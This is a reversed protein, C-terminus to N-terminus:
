LRVVRRLDDPHTIWIKVEPDYSGEETYDIFGFAATLSTFERESWITQVLFKGEPGTVRGALLADKLAEDVLGNTQSFRKIDSLAVKAVTHPNWFVERDRAGSTDTVESYAVPVEQSVGEVLLYGMKQGKAVRRSKDITRFTTGQRQIINLEDSNLPSRHLLVENNLSKFVVVYKGTPM